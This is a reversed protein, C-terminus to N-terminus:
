GGVETGRVAGSLAERLAHPERGDVILARAGASVAVLAAELKPIMGGQAVGSEILELAGARSLRPILEGQGDLVGRVDTLFVLRKAELAAAVDGAVTDANVNLPQALLVEGEVEVALSAIVPLFGADLLADVQARDIDRVRGVYGLEPDCREARIFAGDVGTLGLARAGLSNLRAVLDTNVVGAFVAVAVDIAARDTVRLGRVFRSEVGHIRLWENLVAGGGHVVVLREGERWLAALDELSTDNAGLTSGGIKVVTVNAM